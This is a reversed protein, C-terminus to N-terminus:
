KPLIYGWTITNYDKLTCLYTIKQKRKNEQKFHGKGYIISSIFQNNIYNEYKEIYEKQSTVKITSKYNASYNKSLYETCETAYALSDLCFLITIATIIKKM